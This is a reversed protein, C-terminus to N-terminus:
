PRSRIIVDYELVLGSSPSTTTVKVWNDCASEADNEHNHSMAKVGLVVGVQHTVSTFSAM